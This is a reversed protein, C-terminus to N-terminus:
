RGGWIQLRLFASRLPRISQNNIISPIFWCWLAIFWHAINWVENAGWNLKPTSGRYDIVSVIDDWLAYFTTGSRIQLKSFTSEGDTTYLLCVSFYIPIIPFCLLKIKVLEKMSGYAYSVRPLLSVRAGGLNPFFIKPWNDHLIRANQYNKMCM